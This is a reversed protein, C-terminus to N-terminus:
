GAAKGRGRRSGHAPGSLLAALPEGGHPAAAPDGLWAAVAAPERAAIEKLTAGAWRGYDVDRLLEDITAPLELAVATQRARLAPSVLVRDASGISGALAAAAATGRRM